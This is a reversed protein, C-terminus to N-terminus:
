ALSLRALLVLQLDIHGMEASLSEFSEERQKEFGFREVVIDKCLSVNEFSVISDIRDLGLDFIM